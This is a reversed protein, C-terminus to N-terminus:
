REAPIIGAGVLDTPLPGEPPTVHIGSRSILVLLGDAGGVVLHQAGRPKYRIRVAPLAPAEGARDLLWGIVEKEKVSLSSIFKTLKNAVQEVEARTIVIPKDEV